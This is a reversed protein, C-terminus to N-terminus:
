NHHGALPALLAPLTTRTHRVLASLDFYVRTIAFREPNVALIVLDRGHVGAWAALWGLSPHLQSDDTQTHM